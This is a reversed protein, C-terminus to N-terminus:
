NVKFSYLRDATVVYLTNSTLDLSIDQLGVFADDVGRFQRAFAGSKTLMFIAGSKGDAVFVNGSNSDMGSVAIAVVTGLPVPLNTINFPVPARNFFKSVAGNKTLVYISGDIAMDVGDKLLTFPSRFYTDARTFTNAQYTYRWIQGIQTDLLYSTDNYLEGAVVLGPQTDNVDPLAIPTVQSTATSYEYITNNGFFVAGETRWRNSSPTAWAVDNATNPPTVVSSLQIPVPKGTISARTADLVYYEATNAGTDLTYVGLSAAGIRRQGVAPSLEALRIRRSARSGTRKTWNRRLWLRTKSLRSPTTPGSRRTRRSPMWPPPGAKSSRPLTRRRRPQRSRNGPPRQLQQREAEGSLQFYLLSVIVAVVIPLLVAIAALLFITARSRERGAGSPRAPLLQAGFAQLSRQVSRAATGM